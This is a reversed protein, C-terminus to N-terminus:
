ITVLNFMFSILDILNVESYWIEKSFGVTNTIKEGLTTTQAYSDSHNTHPINFVRSVSNFMLVSLLLKKKNQFSFAVIACCVSSDDM